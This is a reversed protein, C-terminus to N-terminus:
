LCFVSVFQAFLCRVRWLRGSWCSGIDGPCNGGTSRHWQGGRRRGRRSVGWCHWWLHISLNFRQSITVFLLVFGAAAPSSSVLRWCHLRSCHRVLHSDLVRRRGGGGSFRQEL